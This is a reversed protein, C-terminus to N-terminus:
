DWLRSCLCACRIEGHTERQDCLHDALENGLERMVMQQEKWETVGDDFAADCCSDCVREASPRMRDLVDQVTPM